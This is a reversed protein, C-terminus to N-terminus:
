VQQTAPTDMFTLQIGTKFGGITSTSHVVEGQLQVVEDEFGCELTVPTQPRLEMDTKLMCGHSSLQILDALFKRPRGEIDQTRVTAVLDSHVRKDHRKVGSGEDLEGGLRLLELWHDHTVAKPEFGNGTSM